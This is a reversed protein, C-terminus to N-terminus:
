VQERHELGKFHDNVEVLLDLVHDFQRVSAGVGAGPDTSDLPPESGDSGFWGQEAADGAGEGSSKEGLDPPALYQQSMAKVLCSLRGVRTAVETLDAIAGDATATLQGRGM